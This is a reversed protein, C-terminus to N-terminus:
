HNSRELWGNQAAKSSRSKAPNRHPYHRDVQKNTPGMDQGKQTLGRLGNPKNYKVVIRGYTRKRKEYRSALPQAATPQGGPGMEGRKESQHGTAVSPTRQEEM